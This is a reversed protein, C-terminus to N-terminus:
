ADLKSREFNELLISYFFYHRTSLILNTYVCIRYVRVFNVFKLTANGLRWLGKSEERCLLAKKKNSLIVLASGRVTWKKEELLIKFKQVVM